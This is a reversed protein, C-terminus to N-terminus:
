AEIVIDTISCPDDKDHRKKLFVTCINGKKLEAPYNLSNNFFDPWLVKEGVYGDCDLLVKLAQKTNKKYDFISTELIFATVAVYADTGMEGRKVEDLRQLQEGTILLAKKENGYEDEVKMMRNSPSPVGSLCRSYKLGLDNLGVLLSPLISKRIAANKMPDNEITLYDEPIVGKKPETQKVLKGQSKAKVFKKTEM